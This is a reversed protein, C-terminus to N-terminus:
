GAIDVRVQYFESLADDEYKIASWEIQEDVDSDVGGSLSVSDSGLKVRPMEIHIGGATNYGGL